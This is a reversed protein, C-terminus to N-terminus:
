TPWDLSRLIWSCPTPPNSSSCSLQFSPLICYPKTLTLSAVVEKVLNTKMAHTLRAM